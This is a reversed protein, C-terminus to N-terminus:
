VHWISRNHAVGLGMIFDVTRRALPAGGSFLLRAKHLGLLQRIKSLVLKDAIFYYLIFELAYLIWVFAGIYFISDNKPRLRHHFGRQVHDLTIKTAWTFLKLRVTSLAKLREQIKEELKEWVRPVALFITPEAFTLTKTLTGKFGDPNAFYVTAGGFCDITQALIHSLPLYSVIREKFMVSKTSQIIFNAAYCINDHSIM